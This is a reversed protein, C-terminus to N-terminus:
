AQVTITITQNVGSVADEVTLEFTDGAVDAAGLTVKGTADVAVDATANSANDISWTPTPQTAMAVGYQDLFEVTYTKTGAAVSITDATVANGASKIVASTIVPNAKKINVTFSGVKNGSLTTAVVKITAESVGAPVTVVGTNSITVNAPADQLSWTVTDYPPDVPVGYQDTVAATYTETKAAAGTGPIEIDTAGTVTVNSVESADKTINVTLTATKGNASATLVVTGATASNPVELEGTAPTFTVGTATGGAPAFTADSVNGLQDKLQATYKKTVAAGTPVAITTPGTIVVNEVAVTSVNGTYVPDAKGAGNGALDQLYKSGLVEVSYKTAITRDKDDKLQITVFDDGQNYDVVYETGPVLTHGDFYRVLKFDHALIENTVGTVLQLQETFNVKIQNNNIVQYNPNQTTNASPIPAVLDLIGLQQSPGGIGDGALTELRNFDVKVVLNAPNTGVKQNLHLTVTSTGDTTVSNLLNSNNQDVVTFAGSKYDTIGATFKIKLTEQDVLAVPDQSRDKDYVGLGVSLDSALSITNRTGNDSNVFEDLLNGAEDKVGNVQIANIYIERNGPNTAGTFVVDKDRYTEAFTFAVAKGDHLISIEAMDETLTSTTGNIKVLYNSYDALTATDMRENFGIVVYRDKKNVLRSDIEPAKTDVVKIDGTFDLMTNGLRTNDKLNKVTITNIGAPLDKYLYVTVVNKDARAREVSLVKGDKDKVIYNEPKSASDNDIAKTFTIKVEKPNVAEVKRVAPRTMDIEPTVLVTTDKAIENGSYDKIGEVYVVVSGTPLARDKGFIYKVKNGALEEFEIARIKDDGSKWYVKNKDVTDFDIDESFTLTVTELTAEAEAVTPAEKDEVVTVEHSSNLATFPVYDKVGSVGIVHDGVALASTNYPTIVVSRYDASLRIKGYFVKGDITFNNQKPEQVPESFTLKVAKTGLSKVETVEPIQNDVATFEFNKTEIKNDGSVIGSVTLADVKNNSLVSKDLTITATTQDESLTVMKVVKGSRLSYNVKDTGTEKDVPGDFKVVVEKLNNATVSEVKTAEAPKNDEAYKAQAAAVGKALQYRNAAAFGDFGEEVDVALLNYKLATTVYGQAWPAVGEHNGTAARAEEKYKPGLAGVLFVALEQVSVEGKPNFTGDKNGNAIGAKYAAEIFRLEPADEKVDPFTSTTADATLKFAKVIAVAFQDRKMAEDVGFKGEGVGLFIGDEILKDFIVKDAASLKDLDSFDKSTAALAATSFASLAMTTSLIVSLSKKMVKKEGGRIENSHYTNNSIHSGTNRM